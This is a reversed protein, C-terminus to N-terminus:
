AYRPLCTSVRSGGAPAPIPSIASMFCVKSRRTSSKISLPNKRSCATSIRSLVRMVRVSSRVPPFREAALLSSPMWRLVSWLFISSKLSSRLGGCFTFASRRLAAADHVAHIQENEVQISSEDIGFLIQTAGHVSRSGMASQRWERVFCHVGVDALARGHQNASGQAGACRVLLNRVRE